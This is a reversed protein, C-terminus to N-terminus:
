ADENPSSEQQGEKRSASMCGRGQQEDLKGRGLITPAYSSHVVCKIVKYAVSEPGMRFLLGGSQNSPSLVRLKMRTHRGDVSPVGHDGQSAGEVRAASPTGQVQRNPYRTRGPIVESTPEGGRLFRRFSFAYLSMAFSRWSSAWAKM